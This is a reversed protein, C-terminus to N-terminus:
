LGMIQGHCTAEKRPHKRSRLKLGAEAVSYLLATLDARSRKGKPVQPVRVPQMKALMPRHTNHTVGM